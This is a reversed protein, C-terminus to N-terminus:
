IAGFFITGAENLINRTPFTKELEKPGPQPPWGDARQLSLYKRFMRCKRSKSRPVHNAVGRAHEFEAKGGSFTTEQITTIIKADHALHILRDKLGELYEGSHAEAGDSAASACGTNAKSDGSRKESTGALPNDGHAAPLDCSFAFFATWCTNQYLQFIEHLRARTFAFDAKSTRKEYVPMFDLSSFNFIYQVYM